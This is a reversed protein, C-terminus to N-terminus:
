IPIEFDGEGYTRGVRPSHTSIGKVDVGGIIGTPNAGCPALSNFHTRLNLQRGGCHNAGCPALSNFHINENPTFVEFPNAGCPALSNFHIPVFGKINYDFTRGVRPSHTSIPVIRQEVIDAFPEGWVPRTLQFSLM